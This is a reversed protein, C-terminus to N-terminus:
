RRTEADLTALKKCAKCGFVHLRPGARVRPLVGIFKMPKNCAQCNPAPTPGSSVLQAVAAPGGVGGGRGLGGWM